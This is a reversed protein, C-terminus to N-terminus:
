KKEKKKKDIEIKTEPFNYNRFGCDLCQYMIPFGIAELRGKGMRVNISECKPCMKVYVIKLKKKKEKKKM